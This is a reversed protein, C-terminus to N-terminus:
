EMYKEAYTGSRNYIKTRRTKEILCPYMAQANIKDIYSGCKKM